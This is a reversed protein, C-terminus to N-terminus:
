MLSHKRLSTSSLKSTGEGGISKVVVVALEPIKNQHRKDNITHAGQVTEESVVISQLNPDTEAKVSELPDHLTVFEIMLDRQISRLFSEVHTKREDFSQIQERYRKREM